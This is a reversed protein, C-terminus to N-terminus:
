KAAASRNVATVAALVKFDVFFTKNGGVEHKRRKRRRELVTIFL